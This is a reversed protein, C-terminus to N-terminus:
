CNCRHYLYWVLVILSSIGLGGGGVSLTAKSALPDTNPPLILLIGVLFIVSFAIISILAILMATSSGGWALVQRAGAGVQPGFITEIRM